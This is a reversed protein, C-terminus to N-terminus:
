EEPPDEAPEPTNGQAVWKLYNKYDRNNPDAPILALDPLRRVGNALSREPGERYLQYSIMNRGGSDMTFVM